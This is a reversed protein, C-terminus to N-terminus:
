CIIYIYYKIENLTIEESDEIELEYKKLYKKNIKERSIVCIANKAIFEAQYFFQDLIEDKITDDKFLPLSTIVFDFQEEQFKVDLWDLEFKSIKIKQGSHNLNEKLKSFEKDSQVIAVYKNKDIVPKPIQTRNKFARSINLENRLKLNLPKRPNFVSAELIVEGLNAFPDVVSYTKEEELGLMYFCCNIILSSISDINTNIRFDRNTLNFGILDFVEITKDKIKIDSKPMSMLECDADVKLYINEIARSYYILQYTFDFLQEDDLLKVELIEDSVKKSNQKTFELIEDKALDLVANHTKIYVTNM